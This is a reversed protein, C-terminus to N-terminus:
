ASSKAYDQGPVGEPFPPCLPISVPRKYINESYNQLCISYEVFAKANPQSGNVLMPFHVEYKQWTTRQECGQSHPGHTTMEWGTVNWKHAVAQVGCTFGPPCSESVTVAEANTTGISIDAQLGIGIAGRNTDAELATISNFSM